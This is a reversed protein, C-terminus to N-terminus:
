IFNYLPIKELELGDSFYYFLQNAFYENYEGFVKIFNSNLSERSIYWQSDLISEPNAQFLKFGRVCCDFDADGIQKKLETLKEDYM